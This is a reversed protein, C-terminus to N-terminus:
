LIYWELEMPVNLCEKDNYLQIRVRQQIYPEIIIRSMCGKSSQMNYFFLLGLLGLLLLKYVFNLAVGTIM